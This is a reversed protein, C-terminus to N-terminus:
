TRLSSSLPNYQNHPMTFVCLSSSVLLARWFSYLINIHTLLTSYSKVTLKWFSKRNIFSNLSKWFVRKEDWHSSINYMQSHDTPTCFDALRIINRGTRNPGASSKLKQYKLTKLIKIVCAILDCLWAVYCWNSQEVSNNIIARHKFGYMYGVINTIQFNNPKFNVSDTHEASWVPTNNIRDHRSDLCAAIM